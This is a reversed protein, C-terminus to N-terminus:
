YKTCYKKFYFIIINQNYQWIDFILTPNIEPLRFYYESLKNEISEMLVEQYHHHSVFCASNMTHFWRKLFNTQYRM